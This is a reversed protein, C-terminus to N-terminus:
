AQAAAQKTAAAKHAAIEAELVRKKGEFVRVADAQGHKSYSGLTSLIM